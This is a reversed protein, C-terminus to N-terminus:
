VVRCCVRCVFVCVHFQGAKDEKPKFGRRGDKADKLDRQDKENGVYLAGGLLARGGVFAVSELVVEVGPAVRLLPGIFGKDSGGRGPTGYKGAFGAGGGGSRSEEHRAAEDDEDDEDGHQQQSQQQPPSLLRQSDATTFTTDALDGEFRASSLLDETGGGGSGGGAAGAGGEAGGWAGHLVSSLRFFPGVFQTEPTGQQQQRSNFSSDKSADHFPFAEELPTARQSSSSSSSSASAWPSPVPTSSPPRAATEGDVGVEVVDSDGGGGEGDAKDDEDEDEENSLAPLELLTGNTEAAAKAGHVSMSRSLM